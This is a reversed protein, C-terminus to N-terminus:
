PCVLSVAVPRTHIDNPAACMSDRAARDGPYVLAVKNTRAQAM